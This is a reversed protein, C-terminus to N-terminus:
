VERGPVGIVVKNPIDISKTIVSGSGVITDRAITKKDLVTANAGILVRDQINVRGCITSSPAIHNYNGITSEHEINAQTNIINGCGISVSPGIHSLPGIYNGDKMDVEFSIQASPHIINPLSFGKKRLKDALHMRQHNDGIAVVASIDSHKFLSYEEGIVPVGLIKEGEGQFNIDLIALIDWINQSILTSIIARSHGGAGVVIIKKM